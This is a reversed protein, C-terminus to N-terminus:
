DQPAPEYNFWDFRAPTPAEAPSYAYMAVIIGTFGGAVESSLLHTEASGLSYIDSLEHKISFTFQDPDAGVHLTVPGDGCNCDLVEELRLSGVIRRWIWKKEGQIRKVALDYHYKENMYVTLGAEENEYAPEFDLMAAISCCFHSLRRGVFAPNKGDDLSSSNGYLTLHGPSEHLSVSNPAPNRLHIWDLGLAPQDFHDLSVPAPWKFEPLNPSDMVAHLRGNEGIMPWGDPTWTVSALFTERGLHHRMPYAPPRIGLCVAWWSGDQIQVLDAHGVAHISSKLSRNSLIPNHPCPVYPGYPADSRAITEMHGYETGGEAIMLYYFGNIKYLHPAEPAAGGTGKWILRSESLKHGTSIDIECQYIGEGDQGNCASQFYVRGDEDFLLSPDIGDQAVYVPRSWPGEAQESRVYFNGGSSVNTTAMYFCGEHYRLTPAYIGGSRWANGLSLQETSTLVHGIKHWHVLDKSHFIPVGPFYEFTSTVLYYDDQVRCISPDPYFGPIIPNSYNM